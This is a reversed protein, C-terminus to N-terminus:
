NFDEPNFDEPNFDTGTLSVPKLDNDAYYKTIKEDVPASKVVIISGTPPNDLYSTIQPNDKMLERVGMVSGYEQIALDWITQREQVIVQKM